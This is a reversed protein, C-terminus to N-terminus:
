LFYFSAAPLTLISIQILTLDPNKKKKKLNQTQKRPYLTTNKNM